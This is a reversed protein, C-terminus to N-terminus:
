FAQETGLAELAPPLVPPETEPNFHAALFLVLQAYDAESMGEARDRHAAMMAQWDEATKQAKVIPVFTHCSTCQTLVADRSALCQQETQEGTMGGATCWFIASIDVEQAGSPIAAVAAAFASAGLRRTWRDTM